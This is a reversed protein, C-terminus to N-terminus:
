AVQRVVLTKSSMNPQKDLQITSGSFAAHLFAQRPFAYGKEAVREKAAFQVQIARHGVPIMANYRDDELLMVQGVLNQDRSIGTLPLEYSMNTPLPVIRRQLLPRGSDEAVVKELTPVYDSINLESHEGAKKIAEKPDRLVPSLDPSRILLVRGGPLYAPTELVFFGYMSIEHDPGAAVRAAVAEQGTAIRAGYPRATELCADLGGSLLMAEQSGFRATPFKEAGM